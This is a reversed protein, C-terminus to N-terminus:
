SVEIQHAGPTVLWWPKLCLNGCMPGCGDALLALSEVHDVGPTRDIAQMIETRYVDRGLPWGTGDPGGTLPDLFANLADLIAQRLQTKSATPFAGSWGHKRGTQPGTTTTIVVLPSGRSRLPRPSSSEFM